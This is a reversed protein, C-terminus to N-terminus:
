VVLLCIKKSGAYWLPATPPPWGNSTVPCHCSQVMESLWPEQDFLSIAGPERSPVAAPNVRCVISLVVPQSFERKLTPVFPKEIRCPREAPLMTSLLTSLTVNVNPPAFGISM